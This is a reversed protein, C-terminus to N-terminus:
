LKQTKKHKGFVTVEAKEVMNSLLRLTCFLHDLKDMQSVIIQKNVAGTSMSTM